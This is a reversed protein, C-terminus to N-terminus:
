YRLLSQPCIAGAKLCLNLICVYTRSSDNQPQLLVRNSLHYTRCGFPNTFNWTGEYITTVLVVALTNHVHSLPVHTEYDDCSSM